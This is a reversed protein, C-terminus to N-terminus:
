SSVSNAIERERWFRHMPQVWDWSSSLGLYHSDWSAHVSQITSRALDRYRIAMVVNDVDEEDIRDKIMMVSLLTDEASVRSCCFSQLNVGADEM